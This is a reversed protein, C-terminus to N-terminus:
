SKLNNDFCAFTRIFSIGTKHESIVCGLLSIQEGVSPHYEGDRYWFRFWYKWGNIDTAIYDKHTRSVAKDIGVLYKLHVTRNSTTGKIVTLPGIEVPKLLPLPNDEGQMAIIVDEAWTNISKVWKPTLLEPKNFVRICANKIFWNRSDRELLLATIAKPNLDKRCDGFKHQKKSLTRGELIGITPSV